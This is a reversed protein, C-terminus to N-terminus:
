GAFRADPPKAENSRGFTIPGLRDRPTRDRQLLRYSVGRDTPPTGEDADIEIYRKARISGDRIIPADHLRKRSQFM